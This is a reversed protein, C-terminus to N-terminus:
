TSLFGNYEFLYKIFLPKKKPSLFSPWSIMQPNAFTKFFLNEFHQNWYKQVYWSSFMITQFYIKKNWEKIVFSTKKFYSKVIKEFLPKWFNPEFSPTEFRGWIRKIQLMPAFAWIWSNKFLCYILRTNLIFTKTTGLIQYKLLDM